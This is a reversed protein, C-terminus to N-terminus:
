PRSVVPSFRLGDGRPSARRVQDRLEQRQAESLRHPNSDPAEAPRRFESEVTQWLGSRPSASPVQSPTAAVAGALPAAVDPPEQAWAGPAPALSAGLLAAAISSSVKFSM